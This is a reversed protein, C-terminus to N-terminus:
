VLADYKTVLENLQNILNTLAASPNLVSNAEIHKVLTQYAEIAAPRFDSVPRTQKGAVDTVRDLYIADFDLNAENLETVWETIDPLLAIAATLDADANFDGILSKLAATEAPYNLQAINNSYKDMAKLLLAGAAKKDPNFHYTYSKAMGRIGRIANDRRADLEQVSATLASGQNVKFAADLDKYATELNGKAGELVTVGSRTVLAITSSIFELFEANRYSKLKPEKIM